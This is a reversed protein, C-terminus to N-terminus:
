ASREKQEQNGLFRLVARTEGRDDSLVRIDDGDAVAPYLGVVGRISGSDAIEKLCKQADDYLKAEASQRVSLIAPYKGSLELM